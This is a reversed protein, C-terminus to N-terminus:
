YDDPYDEAIFIDWPPFEKDELYYDYVRQQFDNLGDIDDVERGLLSEFYYIDDPTVRPKIPPTNEDGEDPDSLDEMNLSKVLAELGALYNNAGRNIYTKWVDRPYREKIAHLMLRNLVDRNANLTINDLFLLRDDDEDDIDDMDYSKGLIRCVTEFVEKSMRSKNDHLFDIMGMQAALEAAVDFPLSEIYKEPLLKLGSQVQRYDAVRLTNMYNELDNPKLFQIYYKVAEPYQFFEPPVNTTGKLYRRLRTYDKAAVADMIKENTSANAYPLSKRYLIEYFKRYSTGDPIHYM